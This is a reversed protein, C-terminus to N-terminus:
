RLTVAYSFKKTYVQKFVSIPDKERPGEKRAVRQIVEQMQKINIDRTKFSYSLLSFDIQNDSTECCMVLFDNSYEESNIVFGHNKVLDGLDVM